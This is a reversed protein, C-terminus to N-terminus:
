SKPYYRCCQYIPRYNDFSSTPGSKHIPTVKAIKWKLPVV